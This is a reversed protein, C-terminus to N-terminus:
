TDSCGIIGWQSLHEPLVLEVKSAQRLWPAEFNMRSPEDSPNSHSAVRAFWPSFRCKYEFEVYEAILAAGLDTSAHARVFASRAADNDLYHVVLKGVVNTSWIKVAVLLPLIELEYIPHKSKSLFEELLPQPLYAGFFSVVQGSPNVLVGGISAPQTNTPEFAGDTFIIWTENIDRNISVQRSSVLHNRLTGLASRLQDDVRISPGTRRSHWSLVRTAANLRRGFVFTRFWVIRGHLRELTKTGVSNHRLIEDICELLEKSREETHGVKVERNGVNETNVVLGLTKFCDSFPPAKSGESAFNIGLLKFLAEAYFTTDLELGSPSLATYDDFFVSWPICLGKSGIFAIASSIRLFASVSGTAGFPLALVKFFAVGGGPKKVAIRLKESHPVDVGFQKYASKLDFTRGLLGKGKDVFSQSDLLVSIGALIEDIADVRLKESMGFASNVGCISFDDILRTKEKQQIPFRKAIFQKGLDPHPEEALWGNAVEQMTEDWAVQDVPMWESSELSAVVAMNLGKAMGELQEMSSDPPKVRTQFVGSSQAWGTLPFGQCVEDVIKSDPYQLDLLIEKWLLLKKDKLLPQLHPPLGAHLQQEEARLQVARKMWKKLFNARKSKIEFPDGLFVEELVEKMLAPVRAFARRPHGIEQADKIFDAPDRPIGLTLVEFHAGEEIPSALTSSKRRWEDRTFGWHLQRHIVNTGKPFEQLLKEIHQYGVPIAATVERGYEALVQKLKNGRSQAAFLNRKGVSPDVMLQQQLSQCPSLGRCKAENLCISAFRQCLITPYAAEEATPFFLKGDVWRPKWSDHQHQGDCLIGLSELINADPKRPNYSWFKSKKDRTGGHMCHQLVTFHGPYKDFLKLMFSTLWFLSNLPNEVTVAVGLGILFLILDVMASYSANAELVRQHEQETLGALGDPYSESRLPRPPNPIGPVKRERAKSATGCSPAFHALLLDEREAEAFKCVTNFDHPRTLDFSAVPFNEARRPNKDVALVRFGLNKCAKSFRCSGAFIELILGSGKNPEDETGFSEASAEPAFVTSNCFSDCASVNPENCFPTCASAM